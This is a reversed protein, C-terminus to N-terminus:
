GASSADGVVSEVHIGMTVAVHAIRAALDPHARKIRHWLPLEALCGVQAGAFHELVTEPKSELQEELLKFLEAPFRTRAESSGRPRIRRRRSM